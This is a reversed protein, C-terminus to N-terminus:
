KKVLKENVDKNFQKLLELFNDGLEKRYIIKTSVGKVNSIIIEWGMGKVSDFKPQTIGSYLPKHYGREQFKVLPIRVETFIYLVEKLKIKTEESFIERDKSVIDKMLRILEYTGMVWLESLTIHRLKKLRDEELQSDIKIEPFEQILEIDLLGLGRVNGILLIDIFRIGFSNEIWESYRDKEM